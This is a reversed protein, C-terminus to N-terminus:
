PNARARHARVRTRVGCANDACWRRRGSEDLYIGACTPDACARLRVPDPGALQTAAQRAVRGLAAPADAPASATLNGKGLRLTPSADHALARNVVQVASGGPRRDDVAARALEYLADRLEIATALDAVSPRKRPQLGIAAFWDALRQPSDLREIVPGRRRGTLTAILNLWAAGYHLRFETDDM